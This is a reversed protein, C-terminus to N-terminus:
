SGIVECRRLIFADARGLPCEYGGIQSGRVNRSLVANAAGEAIGFVPTDDGNGQEGGRDGNVGLGFEVEVIKLLAVDVGIIRESSGNLSGNGERKSNQNAIFTFACCFIEADSRSL